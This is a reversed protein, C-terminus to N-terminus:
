TQEKLVEASSVVRVGAARLEELVRRTDGASRELACSADEVVSTAFGAQAADLAAARVCVELVLGCM